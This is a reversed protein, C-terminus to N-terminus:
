MGGHSQSGTFARSAATQASGEPVGSNQGLSSTEPKQYTMPDTSEPDVISSILDGKTLRTTSYTSTPGIAAAGDDSRASAIMGTAEHGVTGVHSQGGTEPGATDRAYSSDPMSSSAEPAGM